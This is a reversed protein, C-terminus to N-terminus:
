EKHICAAFVIALKHPYATEDSCDLSVYAINVLVKGGPESLHEDLKM